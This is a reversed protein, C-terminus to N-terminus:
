NATATMVCAAGPGPVVSVSATAAVCSCSCGAGTCAVGAAADSSCTGLRSWVETTRNIADQAKMDDGLRLVSESVLLAPQLRAQIIGVAILGGVVVLVLVQALISGRRGSPTTM